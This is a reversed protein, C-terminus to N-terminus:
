AVYIGVSSPAAMAVGTGGSREELRGVRIMIVHDRDPHADGAVGVPVGASVSGGDAVLDALMGGFEFGGGERIAWIGEKWAGHV